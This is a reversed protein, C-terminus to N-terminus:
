EGDIEIVPKRAVCAIDAFYPGIPHQRRFKIGDMRHARVIEWCIREARSPDRRLERARKVSKDMGGIKKRMNREGKPSLRPSPTDIHSSTKRLGGRGVEGGLPLPTLAISDALPSAM